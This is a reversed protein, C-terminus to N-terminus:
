STPITMVTGQTLPGCAKSTSKGSKGNAFPMVLDPYGADAWAMKHLRTASYLPEGDVMMYTKGHIAPDFDDIDGIIEGVEYNNEAEAAATPAMAPGLTAAIMLITLFLSTRIQM